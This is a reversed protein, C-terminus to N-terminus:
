KNLENVPKPENIIFEKLAEKNKEFDLELVSGAHHYFKDEYGANIPIRMTEVETVPNVLMSGGIALMSQTEMDTDVYKLLEQGMGPLHFMGDLSSIKNSFADKLANLIEQQRKVRGFDSEADHRFRAYALLEKGHLRQHGPKMKLGMDEIIQQNVNVEIGKPAVMDVVKVFGQFDITIYHEVDIGFNEKITKRLLEPGGLYYAMNIKNYDKEYSPIKVYSDRMISVLKAKQNKPNYQAIMIADSRSNKEGRSDVGLVLVNLRGNEDKVGYFPAPKHPTDVSNLNSGNKPTGSSQCGAIVILLFLIFLQKM